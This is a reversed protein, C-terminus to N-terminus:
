GKYVFSNEDGGGEDEDRTMGVNYIMSPSDERSPERSREPM